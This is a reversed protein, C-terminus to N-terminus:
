KIKLKRIEEQAEILCGIYGDQYHQSNHPDVTMNFVSEGADELAKDYSKAMLASSMILVQKKVEILDIDGQYYEELLNDLDEEEAEMVALVWLKDM